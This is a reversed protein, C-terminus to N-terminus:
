PRSYKWQEDFFGAAAVKGPYRPGPPTSIDILAWDPLKPVQRANNLYDYERYTFGSNLVVYREPNLPNPYVLIPMAGAAAAKAAGLALTEPSWQLPLNAVMKALVKNSGPDGWLVLNSSAIEKETIETDAMVRPEGRFQRRWERIARGQEAEVWKATSAVMPQGTPRVFIFSDMFADDVPGQLGHKKRLGSDKAAVASWAGGAKSMSVAFSGDSMPGPAKVVKGDVVVDVTAAPTLLRAGAGMEITFADVNATKVRITNEATVDADLRAREWHKGLADVRLWKMRDYRLTWTTFRISRPYRDRGREAIADIRRNIEVKSDPHYRHPTQPGIV